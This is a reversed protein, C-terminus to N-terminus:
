QALGFRGRHIVPFGSRFCVPILCGRYLRHWFRTPKFVVGKKQPSPPADGLLQVAHLCQGNWKWQVTRNRNACRHRSFRHVHGEDHPGRSLHKRQSGIHIEIQRGSIYSLCWPCWVRLLKAVGQPQKYRQFRGVPRGAGCQNRTARDAHPTCFPRNRARLKM